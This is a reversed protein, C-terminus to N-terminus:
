PAAACIGPVARIAQAKLDPLQDAPPRPADRSAVGLRRTEEPDDQDLYGTIEVRRGILTKVQQETVGQREVNYAWVIVLTDTQVPSRARTGSRTSRAERDARRADLLVYHDREGPRVAAERQLCGVLVITESQPWGRQAQTSAPGQASIGIANLVALSAFLNLTRARM